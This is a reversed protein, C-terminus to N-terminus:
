LLRRLLVKGFKNGGRDEFTNTGRGGDASLRDIASGEVVLSNDGVGQRIVLDVIDADFIHVDVDGLITMKGDSSTNRLTVNDCARIWSTDSLVSDILVVEADSTISLKDALGVGNLMVRGKAQIRVDGGFEIGGKADGGTTNTGAFGTPSVLQTVLVGNLSVSVLQSHQILENTEIDFKVERISGLGPAYFKESLGFPERVSTDRSHFVNSFTGLPVTLTENTAVGVAQDVVGGPQFEQYYRHGVRPQAEMIIGAVADDVGAEWSGSKDTGISNGNADFRYNTVDEGLYWVNGNDDQAYWDITDEILVGKLYVRDRIVLTEVGLITKTDALVDVIIEETYPEGTDEDIGTVAYTSTTGPVLPFYPNDINLGDSFTASALDAVTARGAIVVVEGGARIDTKGQVVVENVITVDADKGTRVVLEDGIHVPGASGEINFQGRGLTARLDGSLDFPGALAVQDAGGQQMLISLNPTLRTIDRFPQGNVTTGDLGQVRITGPTPQSIEVQNDLRDGRITLGLRNETLLVNGAMLNRAELSEVCLPRPRLVRHNM